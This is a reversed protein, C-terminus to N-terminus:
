QQEVLVIHVLAAYFAVYTLKHLRFWWIGFREKAFSNSTLGLIAMCAFGLTGWFVFSTPIHAFDLLSRQLYFHGLSHVVIASFSLTGLYKRYNAITTLITWTTMVKALLPIFLIIVLLIFTVKGLVTSYEWALGTDIFLLVIFVIPLLLSVFKLFSEIKTKYQTLFTNLTNM